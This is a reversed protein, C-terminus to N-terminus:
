LLLYTSGPTELIEFIVEVSQCYHLGTIISVVEEPMLLDDWRKWKTHSSFNAVLLKLYYALKFFFFVSVGFDYCNKKFYLIL